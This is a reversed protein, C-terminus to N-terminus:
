FSDINRLSIHVYSQHCLEVGHASFFLVQQRGHIVIVFEFTNKSDEACMIM